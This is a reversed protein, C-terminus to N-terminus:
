FRPAYEGAYSDVLRVQYAGRGENQMTNFFRKDATWFECGRVVALAMYSADYVEHRKIADGVARAIPRATAEYAVQVPAGDLLSQAHAAAEVTFFGGRVMGRLASDAETEWWAPAIMVVGSALCDGILRRAAQHSSHAPIVANLWLNADTVIERVTVLPAIDSEDVASEDADSM